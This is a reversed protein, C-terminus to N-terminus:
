CIGDWQGRSLAFLDRDQNGQHTARAIEPTVIVGLGRHLREVRRKLRHLVGDPVM